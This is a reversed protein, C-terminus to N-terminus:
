RVLGVLAFAAAGFAALPLSGPRGVTGIVTVTAAAAVAALLLGSGDVRTTGSPASEREARGASRDPVPRSLLAPLGMLVLLAIALPIVARNFYGPGVSSRAASFAEALMPYVTGVLVVAAISVLLVRNGVLAAARSLLASPASDGAPQGRWGLLAVVALTVLLIFGLLLPGLASRTFAHVSPVAGSRTLFTGVLVLLFSATALGVRWGPEAHRRPGLATHLFATTTLWPLLSANEVPDWAWYGGWGLVAYSWWAGLTIGATLLAWAPLAWARAPALWRDRGTGALLGGLAYAFPIVLGIYGAYLLPPHVGMAPHQQLLPNPGPGDAPVPDVLRFPNAAFTTLAFFFVCVLGVVVMAWRHVPAAGTPVRLSLLAAYGTLILLWLLLSGDLASWLGTVTYYLPVDRGGNEAVYRIAFDHRVLAWELAGVAVTAALLTLGTAIRAQRATAGIALALRLWLLTAAVAAVLGASLAWGGVGGTM